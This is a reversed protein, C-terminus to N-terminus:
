IDATWHSLAAPTRAGAAGEGQAGRGGGATHGGELARAPLPKVPPVLLGRM